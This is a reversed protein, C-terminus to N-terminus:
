QVLEEPIVMSWISAHDAPKTEEAASALHISNAATCFGGWRLHSPLPWSQVLPLLPPSSVEAVPLRWAHLWSSGTKSSRVSDSTWTSSVIGSEIGLLVRADPMMHLWTVNSSIRYPLELHPVFENHHNGLRPVLQVLRDNHLAWLQQVNGTAVLSRWPGGHLTLLTAHPEGALNCRLASKGAAGLLVASCENGESSCEVSLGGIGRSMFHPAQALCEMLVGQSVDKALPSLSLAHVAFAEAVLMAQGLAPHCSLGTPKFFAHPWPGDYVRQMSQKERPDWMLNSPWIVNGACWVAGLLWTVALMSSGLRFTRYPMEGPSRRGRTCELSPGAPQPNFTAATNASHELTAPVCRGGATEGLQITAALADPQSEQNAFTSGLVLRSSMSASDTRERPNEDTVPPQAQEFQNLARVRDAFLELQQDLSDLDLVRAPDEPKAWLIQGTGCGYYFQQMTYGVPNWELKLFVPDEEPCSVQRSLPSASDLDAMELDRVTSDFKERLKSLRQFTSEDGELAERVDQSDWRSLDHLLEYKLRRCLSVLASRLHEPPATEAVTAQTPRSEDPSGASGLWGFVDLYLVSRFKTPLATSNPREPAALVMMWALWGCQGLYALPTLLRAFLKASLGTKFSTLSVALASLLSPATILAGAVKLMWRNQYVDLVVVLVAGADLILICCYAAVPTQLEIVLLGLCYVGLARLLQNTGLALCVRAYADYAQWNAQAQRYLEIHELNVVSSDQSAVNAQQGDGQEAATENAMTANLRRLQQRLVPLRCFDSAGKAEFDEARARSADLQERTPLPLRVFQTLMRVGFSHSAISAHMALWMSLLFFTFAGINAIAWMGILWSPWIGQLPKGECFFRVSFGLQLTGIIMYNDMKSVTLGVLDRVDERFLEFRKINMNWGQYDRRIHQESDFMFNKRNYSFLSLGIGGVVWEAM